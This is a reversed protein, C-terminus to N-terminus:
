KLEDLKEELEELKELIKDKNDNLEMKVMELYIYIIGLMVILVCFIFKTSDNINVINNINPIKSGLVYGIIILTIGPLWSILLILLRDSYNFNKM